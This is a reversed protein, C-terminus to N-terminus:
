RRLVGASTYVRGGWSTTVAPLDPTPTLLSIEGARLLITDEAKAGQLSPNWAFAQRDRVAEPGGPRAIWEREVYGTAGGQHHMQEEGAYGLVAYAQQAVRFLDDSTASARTADLLRANVEAVAAFKEELESSMAGFCVLRTISVTLGWRRACLNVMGLHELRGARPLAHRYKRIRDDTAMLLVTPSLGRRLLRDAIMAQMTQESIGPALDLLMTTVVEACTSGIWRLRTMEQETLDLRLQQLSLVPLGYIPFDSAVKGSPALRAIAEAAENRYWPYIVPEFDLGAFEEERLRPFENASTLYFLAGDKRFLLSAPGTERALGIRVDVIGATAWAINEHRSLLVADLQHEEMFQRLRLQKVRLEGSLESLPFLSDDLTTEHTM